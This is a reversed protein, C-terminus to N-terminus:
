FNTGNSAEESIKGVSVEVWHVKGPTTTAQLFFFFPVLVEASDFDFATAPSVTPAAGDILFVARRGRMEVRLTHTETDAWNQTTDTTTTGANNLITEIKIDGLIVNLFAAEDYDDVNAQVAENKRWGVCCDDTGSVDAIKFKVQIFMPDSTGVTYLFPNRTGLCGFTYQVGDDDTQDQSVNLGDNVEFVPGLITQTGLGTYTASLGNRCVITNPGASTPDAYGNATLAVSPQHDMTEFVYAKKKVGDTLKKSNISADGYKPTGIPM